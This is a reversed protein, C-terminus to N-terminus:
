DFPHIEGYFGAFVTGDGYYGKVSNTHAISDIGVCRAQQIVGEHGKIRVWLCPNRHEVSGM